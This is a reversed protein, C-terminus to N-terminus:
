FRFVELAIGERIRYNLGAVGIISTACAEPRHHVPQFGTGSVAHFLLVGGSKIEYCFGAKM